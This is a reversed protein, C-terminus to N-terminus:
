GERWAFLTCHATAQIAFGGIACRKNKEKTYTEGHSWGPLEVFESSYHKCTRCCAPEQRYGQAVKEDSQKSM